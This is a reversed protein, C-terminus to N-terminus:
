LINYLICKNKYEHFSINKMKQEAIIRKCKVKFYPKTYRAIEINHIYILKHTNYAHPETCLLFSQSNLYNDIIEIRSRTM